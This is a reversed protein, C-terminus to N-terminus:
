SPAHDSNAEPSEEPKTETQPVTEGQKNDVIIGSERLDDESANQFYNYFDVPNNDFKARLESPLSEFSERAGEVQHIASQLDQVNSFDGYEAPHRALHTITGTAEYKAMINNINVEDKFSQKTLNQDPDFNIQVRRRKM